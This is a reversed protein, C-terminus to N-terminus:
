RLSGEANAVSRKKKELFKIFIKNLNLNLTKSLIRNRTWHWLVNKFFNLIAYWRITTQINGPQFNM